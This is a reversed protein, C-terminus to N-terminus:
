VYQQFRTSRKIDVVYITAFKKVASAVSQLIEDMVMCTRDGDSGFWIIVVHEQESHIINDVDHPTHLHRLHYAM